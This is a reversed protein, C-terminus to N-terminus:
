KTLDVDKSVYLQYTWEAFLNQVPSVDPDAKSVTFFHEAAKLDPVAGFADRGIASNHNRPFGSAAPGIRQVLKWTGRGAIFDAYSM